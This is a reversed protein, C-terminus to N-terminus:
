AAADQEPLQGILAEIEDRHSLWSGERGVIALFEKNWYPYSGRHRFRATVSAKYRWEPTYISNDRPKRFASRNIPKPLSATDFSGANIADIVAQMEPTWDFWEHKRYSEIFLTHFRSELAYGGEIEAVIELPFPSWTELTKRRNDPAISVGIKVPGTMGIPKIFYVRRM